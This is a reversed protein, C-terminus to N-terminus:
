LFTFARASSTTWCLYLKASSRPRRRRTRHVGETEFYKDNNDKEQLQVM